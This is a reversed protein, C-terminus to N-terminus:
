LHQMFYYIIILLWCPRPLFLVIAGRILSEKFGMNLIVDNDVRRKKLVSLPNENLQNANAPV